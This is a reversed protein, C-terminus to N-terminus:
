KVADKTYEDNLRKIVDATVDLTSDGFLVTPNARSYTLVLKYGKEKAYRKAFAAIKEYLKNNAGQQDNQLQAGANEKFAQLEQQKRSLRQETSARQDASMTSAGKQYDAVERQFAQGKDVLDAQAAKGKTEMQASLDKSYQYQNLLTDQNIYVIQANAATATAVAKNDAKNQNCAVMTAAVTVALAINAFISFPKNM